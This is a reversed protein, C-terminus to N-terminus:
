GTSSRGCTKDLGLVEIARELKQRKRPLFLSVVRGTNYMLRYLALSDRHSFRLDFGREKVHFSGGQIGHSRLRALLTDLFERSGSTFLTALIWRKRVRDAFKLENFYVCGDGDFYGRIFDGLYPEPVPPFLLVTSKRQMFNLSALDYFWAKSGIQLRYQQKWAEKGRRRISITHSAGTATRVQELLIRDTSTFEIFCSGRTNILMSGDAAFYGLVYAMDPTWVKFFDQNLTRPVPM